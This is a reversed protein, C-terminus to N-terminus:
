YIRPGRQPQVQKENKLARIAESYNKALRLNYDTGLLIRAAKQHQPKDEVVLIDLKENTM